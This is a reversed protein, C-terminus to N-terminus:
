KIRGFRNLPYYVTLARGLMLSEPVLGGIADTPSSRAGWSRSDSSQASNDGMCFYHGPQVYFTMAPLHRLPDWTAPEGWDVNGSVEPNGQPTGFRSGYSWYTYYTDRWLRLHTVKVAAGRVGVGAPNLDNAAVPGRDQPAEYSRGDDFPLDNDVWLTLRQDVNAFRLHYKGPKKLKTPKAEGLPEEGHGGIRVLTCLGNGPQFRAQFRDPGKRLELVLEAGDDAQEVNVDCELTLDGVWNLNYLGEGRSTNYGLFDTILQPQGTSGRLLHRYRLWEVESGARAPHSFAHGEAPAWAAADRGWKRRQEFDAREDARGAGRARDREAAWRPVSVDAAPFDNDYVSRQEALIKDPPKRLIYFVKPKSTELTEKAQNRHDRRRLPLHLEDERAAIEAKLEPNDFVEGEAVYVDGYYIGITTNPLGILRKIYNMPVFNEQPEEPFKFVVVDFPRYHVLGTDYLCKGVLVRDGTNCPPSMHEARFDIEYRCNPCVCHDVVQPPKKEVEDSCNVPFDFKCQPCTVLKQYGWLTTAMSGTPIVFAEAVFTKLLLVLVVVFVVTEAIERTSDKVEPRHSRSRDRPQSAPPNPPAVPRGNGLPEPVEPPKVPEVSDRTNEDAM